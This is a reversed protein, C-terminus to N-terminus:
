FHLRGAAGRDFVEVAEIDADAADELRGRQLAGALGGVTQQEVEAVALGALRRRLQHRSIRIRRHQNAASTARYDVERWAAHRTPAAVHQDQARQGAIAPDGQQRNLRPTAPRDSRISPRRMSGSTAIAATAATAPMTSTVCYAMRWTTRPSLRNTQIANGRRSSM